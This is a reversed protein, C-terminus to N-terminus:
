VHARGIKAINYEQDGIKYKIIRTSFDDDIKYTCDSKKSVYISNDKIRCIYTIDLNDLNKFFDM